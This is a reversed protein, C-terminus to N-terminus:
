FLQGPPPCDQGGGGQQRDGGGEADQCCGKRGAIRVAACAIQELLKGVGSVARWCGSPGPPSDPPRRRPRRHGPAPRGPGSSNRPRWRRHPRGRHRWWSRRGQGLGQVHHVGDQPLGKVLVHHGGLQFSQVVAGEKVAFLVTGVGAADQHLKVDVGPLHLHQHGPWWRGPRRGACRRPTCRCATSRRRPPPPCGAPSDWCRAPPGRSRRIGGLDVGAKGAGLFVVGGILLVDTDADTADGLEVAIQDDAAHPGVPGVDQGGVM